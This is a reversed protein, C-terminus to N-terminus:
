LRLARWGGPQDLGTRHRHCPDCVPRLYQDADPDSVGDRILQKRSRPWHDAIVAPRGCLVCWRHRTLYLNRRRYWVPGYGQATSGGRARARNRAHVPCPGPVASASRGPCGPITCPAVPRTTPV